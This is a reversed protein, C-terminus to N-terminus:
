RSEPVTRSGSKVPLSYSTVVERGLHEWPEDVLGVSSQRLDRGTILRFFRTQSDDAAGCVPGTRASRAPAM